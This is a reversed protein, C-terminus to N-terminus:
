STVYGSFILGSSQKYYTCGQSLANRVLWVLHKLTYFQFPSILFMFYLPFLQCISDENDLMFNDIEKSICIKNLLPFLFAAANLEREPQHSKRKKKKKEHILYITKSSPHTSIKPKSLSGRSSCSLIM